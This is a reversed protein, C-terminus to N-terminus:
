HVRVGNHEIVIKSLDPPSVVTFGPELSVWRGAHPTGPRGRKAIKQGNFVVFIDNGDGEIVLPAKKKTPM